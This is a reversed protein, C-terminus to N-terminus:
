EIRYPINQRHKVHGSPHKAKPTKVFAQDFVLVADNGTLEYTRSPSKPRLDQRASTDLTVNLAKVNRDARVLVHAIGDADTTGAPRGDIQLPLGSGTEARVVVVIERVERTCTSEFRTPQFSVENVRRTHTLRLPAVKDLSTYGPPCSISIPLVQGDTGELEVRLRGDSGTIGLSAKGTTIVSGALENGDDNTILLEVAFRSSVPGPEKVRCAQAAIGLILLALGPQVKAIM